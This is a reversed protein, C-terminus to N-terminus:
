DIGRLRDNADPMEIRVETQGAKIDVYRIGEIQRHAGEQKRYVMLRIRGGPLATLHFKGLSDSDQFWVGGSPAYLPTPQNNRDYSVVVNELPKGRADVVTGRVEQNCIPLRFDALQPARGREITMHASTATAHGSAEVHTNYTAGAILGDFRYSGDDKIENLTAVPVGFSRGSQGPYNVDRYLQVVAAGIPKGDADLVRGSVSLLPALEVTLERAGAGASAADPIEVTAGLKAKAAIIDVVTSNERSLGGLKVRGGADSREPSPAPLLKPDRVYVLAGAEAQGEADTLQLVVERGPSLKFEPVEVRQGARGSVDRNLDPDKPQGTFERDPQPFKAPITRLFVTGGGPPLVLRFRGDPSTERSFSFLLPPRAPDPAPYFDILAKAVGEGTMADVVRGTVVMGPPLTITHEVEKPMEPIDIEAFRQAASSVPLSVHLGLKGAVLGDLRFRGNEDANIPLGNRIITAGSAPKGDAELVVRGKLVHDAPKATLTFDGTYIPYRAEQPQGARYTRQIAEPQPTETTAAFALLREHRSETVVLTAIRERPVGRVAFRGEADTSAGLPFASWILNLRNETELGNVDLRGLPDVGFVKVKAGAVPKGGPEIVRGRIIGEPGLKLTIPMHQFQPTLQVWALGHGDALAVIDWPFVSQGAESVHPFVPAPVERFSFEGAGDTTTEALTDRLGEGRVFKEIDVSKMGMVRYRSWERLIVRARAIPRGDLDTVTGSASLETALDPENAGAKPQASAAQAQSGARAAEPKADLLGGSELALVAVSIGVALSSAGALVFKGTMVSRLEQKMMSSLAPSVIGGLTGGTAIAAAANATARVLVTPVAATADSGLWASGTAAALAGSPTIGRRVLREQLHKRGRALRSKLTGLPLRLQQAAEEHSIGQLCCLVVPLRHAARLHDIEQDVVLRLEDRLARDTDSVAVEQVGPQERVKRRINASRLRTAVRRAVRHLWGSLLDQNRVSHARKALILFTAQFADEALHSDALLRRCVGLVMPGHREVLATFAAEASARDGSTYRELLQADSLAGISGTHFLTRIQESVRAEAHGRSM